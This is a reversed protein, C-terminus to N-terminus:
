ILILVKSIKIANPLIKLAKAILPSTNNSKINRIISKHYRRILIKRTILNEKKNNFCQTKRQNWYSSPQTSENFGEVILECQPYLINQLINSRSRYISFKPCSSASDQKHLKNNKNYKDLIHQVRSEATIFQRMYDKMNRKDKVEIHSTQIANMIGLCYNMLM